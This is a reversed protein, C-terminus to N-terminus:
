DRMRISKRGSIFFLLGAILPPFAMTLYVTIVTTLAESALLPYGLLVLHGILLFLVGGIREWRWAIFVPVIFLLSYVAIPILGGTEFPESLISGVLFFGWFGVWCLILVRAAFRLWNRERWDRTSVDTM